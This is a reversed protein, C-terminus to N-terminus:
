QSLGNDRQNKDKKNAPGNGILKKIKEDIKRASFIYARGPRTIVTVRYRQSKIFKILGDGPDTVQGESQDM